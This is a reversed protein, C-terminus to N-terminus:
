KDPKAMDYGSLLLYFKFLYSVLNAIRYLEHCLYVVIFIELRGLVCRRRTINSRFIGIRGQRQNNPTIFDLATKECAAM